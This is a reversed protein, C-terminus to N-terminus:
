GCPITFFFTTGKGPKSDVCIEGGHQSIIQATVYLGIGLGKATNKEGPVQYLRNFIKRQHEKAIGIGSDQVSVQMFENQKQSSITIKGGDPSYKIANTLLNVLVQYIRYRDANLTQRGTNHIRFRHKESTEQLAEVTEKILLNLNFEEKTVSLKGVQVRTVDLLGNILVTVKKTQEDIKHLYQMAAAANGAISAKQALQGFIGVSTIPTKLEHSAMNIFENKQLDLQDRVAMERRILYYTILIFVLTLIMAVTITIFLTNYSIQAKQQRAALVTQEKQKINTLISQIGNMAKQGEGSNVFAQAAAPGKLQYLLIGQKLIRMKEATEDSLLTSNKKQNPNARILTQLSHINQPIKALSSRYRTLFITNGTLLYGRQATEAAIFAAPAQDLAEVVTSTSEVLADREHLSILQEYATVTSGAILLVSLLLIVPILKGYRSFM